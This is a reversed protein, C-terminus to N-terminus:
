RAIVVDDFVGDATTAANHSTVTLGVLVDANMSVTTTGLTTWTVGDKSWAGTFVHGARTLRVWGPAAAPIIAVSASTGGTVSRYQMAAGKAASVIMDVQKASADLSERIMVGAKSWAHVNQISRVRATITGDGTLIQFVYMLGDATGWIDAGAGKLTYNTYDTTASGLTTNIRSSTFPTLAGAHVNSFKAMALAGDAHSTVAFGVLASESFRPITQCGVLSWADTMNKRYYGCVTGNVSTMRLWVPATVAPGATHLSTGGLELRRQFAIGKGPTVFISVHPADATAYARVMIGAKTWPQVNQVSDVRTTMELNGNVWQYVYHFEDSAGWIDAGSGTVTFVGNDYSESGPAGVAGLETHYWGSPLPGGAAPRLSFPPSWGEDANGNTDTV